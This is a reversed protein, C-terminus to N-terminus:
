ECLSISEDVTYEARIATWWVRDNEKKNLVQKLDGRKFDIGVKKLLLRERMTRDDHPRDSVLNEKDNRHRCYSHGSSRLM